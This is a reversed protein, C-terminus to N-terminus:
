LRNIGIGNKVMGTRRQNNALTLRRAGGAIGIDLKESSKVNQTSQSVEKLLDNQRPQLERM